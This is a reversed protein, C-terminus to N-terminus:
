SLIFKHLCYCLNGVMQKINNILNLAILCKNFAILKDCSIMNFIFNRHKCGLMWRCRLSKLSYYQTNNWTGTTFSLLTNCFVTFQIEMTIRHADMFLGTWHISLDTTLVSYSVVTLTHQFRICTLGVGFDCHSVFSFTYTYTYLISECIHWQKEHKRPWLMRPTGM